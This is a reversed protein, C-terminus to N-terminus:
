AEPEARVPHSVRFALAPNLTWECIDFHIEQGPATELVEIVEVALRRVPATVDGVVLWLLGEAHRRVGGEENLLWVKHRQGIRQRRDVLQQFADDIQVAIDRDVGIAVRNGLAVDALRDGDVLRRGLDMDAALIERDGNVAPQDALAIGPAGQGTMMGNRDPLAAACRGLFGQQGAMVWAKITVGGSKLLATMCAVPSRKAPQDLHFAGVRVSREGGDFLSQLVAQEVEAPQLIEDEFLDGAVEECEADPLVIIRSLSRARISWSRRCPMASASSASSARVSRSAM